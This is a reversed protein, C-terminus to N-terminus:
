SKFIYALQESSIILWVGCVNQSKNTRLWEHDTKQNPTKKKQGPLMHQPM